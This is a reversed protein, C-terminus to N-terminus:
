FIKQQDGPKGNESDQEGSAREVTGPQESHLDEEPQQEVKREDPQFTKIEPSAATRGSSNAPDNKGYGRLQQNMRNLEEATQDLEAEKMLKKPLERIEQSTDVLSRWIPSKIFKSISKALKRGTRVMEEPGLVILAITLILLLELPGINFIEM